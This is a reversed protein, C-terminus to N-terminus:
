GKIPAPCSSKAALEEFTPEGVLWNEKSPNDPFVFTAYKDIGMSICLDAQQNDGRPDCEVYDVYKFSSGFRKKVQACHPCWFTGYMKAGKDTLCKAFTDIDKQDYGGSSCGALAIAILVLAIPVIYQKNNM